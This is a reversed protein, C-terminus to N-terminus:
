RRGGLYRATLAALALGYVKRTGILRLMPGILTTLAAAEMMQQQAVQRVRLAEVEIEGPRDRAAILILILGIVLDVGAVILAAWISPVYLTLAMAGAVHLGALMAVFFVAAVAAFIARNVQRQGLRRIRLLEAQAAVRALEVTRM